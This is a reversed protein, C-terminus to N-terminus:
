REDIWRFLASGSTFGSGFVTALILDGHVLAGEGGGDVRAELESCLATAVGAAGQNGCRAVNTWHQDPRVGVAEAVTELVRLNAQHGVFARLDSPALGSRGLLQRASREFSRLAYEKVRRGDQRFCGGVPTTVYDAGENVNEMVLDVIELGLAPREPQILLTAAGDGFFVCTARDTYDTVRTYKEATCLAVRRWGHARALATATALGYV